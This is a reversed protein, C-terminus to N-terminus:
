ETSRGEEFLQPFKGVILFWRSVIFFKSNSIKRIFPPLLCDFRELSLLLHICPALILCVAM